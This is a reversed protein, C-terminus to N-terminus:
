TEKNLLIPKDLSLTLCTPNTASSFSFCAALFLRSSAINILCYNLANASVMIRNSQVYLTLIKCRRSIKILLVYLHLVRYMRAWGEGRFWAGLYTHASVSHLRCKKTGYIIPHMVHLSCLLSQKSVYYIIVFLHQLRYTYEVNKHTEM